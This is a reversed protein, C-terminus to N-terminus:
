LLISSTSYRNATSADFITLGKGKQKLGHACHHISDRTPSNSCLGHVRNDEIFRANIRNNRRRFRRLLHHFEISLMKIFRCLIIRNIGQEPAVVRPTCRRTTAAQLNESLRVMAEARASGFDHRPEKEFVNTVGHAHHHQIKNIKNPGLAWVNKRRKCEMRCPRCGEHTYYAINPRSCPGFLIKVVM